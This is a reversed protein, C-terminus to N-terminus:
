GFNPMPFRGPNYYVHYTEATMGQGDTLAAMATAYSARIPHDDLNIGIDGATKWREVVVFHNPDNLSRMASAGVCASDAGIDAVFAAALEQAKGAHSEGVKQSLVVTGEGATEGSTFAGSHGIIEYFEASIPASMVPILWRLFAMRYPRTLQVTFFEDYDEWEEYMMNHLPDQLSVNADLARGTPEEIAIDTITRFVLAMQDVQDPKFWTHALVGLRKGALEPRPTHALWGDPHPTTASAIHGM